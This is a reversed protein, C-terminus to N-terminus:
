GEDDGSGRVQGHRRGELGEMSCSGCILEPKTKFINSNSRDLHVAGDRSALRNPFVRSALGLSFIANWGQLFRQLTWIRISGATARYPPM